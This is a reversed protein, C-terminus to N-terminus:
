ILMRDRNSSIVCCAMAISLADNDKCFHGMISPVVSPNGFVWLCMFFCIHPCLLSQISNHHNTFIQQSKPPLGWPRISEARSSVSSTSCGTLRRRQRHPHFRQRHRWPHWPVYTSALPHQSIVSNHTESAHSCCGTQEEKTSDDAHDNCHDKARHFM